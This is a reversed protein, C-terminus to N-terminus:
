TADLGVHFSKRAQFSADSVNFQWQIMGALWGAVQAAETAQCARM